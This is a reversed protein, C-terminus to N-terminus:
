DVRAGVSKVVRAWKPLEAKVYAGFQEPSSGILEFGQALLRERVDPLVLAATFEAHLRKVVVAPSGAPLMVGFWTSAEFGPVGAEAITPIDPANAVRRSSSVGLARLRGNAILPQAVIPTFFMFQVQGGLVDALAPTGGKYPIHRLDTGTLSKLLEMALHSPGGSGSSAYNLEGPKARALAVLEQVSRVPVAPTTALLFPVTALQTVPLFDRLLDYGLKRYLSASIAHAVNAQLLTYGDAPARAAVEAAINGGAGARNDVVIQQGVSDGIKLGLIRALSDAGGGPPFPVVFRLPRTPYAPAPTQAAAIGAAALGCALAISRPRRM